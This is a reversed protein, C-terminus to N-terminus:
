YSTSTILTKGIKRFGPNQKLEIFFYDGTESDSPFEDSTQTYSRYMFTLESNIIEIAVDHNIHTNDDMIELKNFIDLNYSVYENFDLNIYGNRDVEGLGDCNDCRVYGQSCEDCSLSGDGGCNDCTHYEEDDEIKGDGGCDDCSLSGDGGCNGCETEGDGGCNDCTEQPNNDTVEGITFTFINNRIEDILSDVRTPELGYSVASTTFSLLIIDNISFKTFFSSTTDDKVMFDFFFHPSKNKKIRGFKTSLQRLSLKDM